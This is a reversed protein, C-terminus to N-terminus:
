FFAQHLVASHHARHTRDASARGLPLDAPETGVIGLYIVAKGEAVLMSGNCPLDSDSFGILSFIEPYFGQFCFSCFRRIFDTFLM